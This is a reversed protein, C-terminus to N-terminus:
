KTLQKIQNILAANIIELEAIRNELQTYKQGFAKSTLDFLCLIQEIDMRLADALIEAENLQLKRGGSLTRSFAGEDLGLKAALERQSIGAEKIRARFYVMNETKM